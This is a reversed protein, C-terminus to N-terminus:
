IGKERAARVIRLALYPKNPLNVPGPGEARYRYSGEAKIAFVGEVPTVTMDWTDLVEVGFSMGDKLGARPLEFAWQAPREKGFYILYYEGAKGAAREDQWKDIPELGDGPAAELVKRLFAIRPPSQGHLVGGKSWWLVDQPHRYTEGHGVYTGAITGQWFRHVMEEGSINGWRQEIDGESKVEDFVVPKRYVDRYLVARGFDSVASGNQISAHTVWSKSHDYILRGNHISRLHDYPDSEQVIRFFRDWDQAKKEKMFDFENALSWWVNRFAALRAIVYRLYRDDAEAPMRDFGWHGEDYPHFLILDAEIGLDRLQGVRKELHRFFQPNFRGFDWKNPPTGEFPYYPPEDRNRSYRKPFVCMRLKNFPGAKLTALTQEELQGGQHTWAYCTTGIPFYPLGDAYAFHFTNRVRVPGHNAPSPEVCTFEGKHGNLEARSSKTQYTWVGRRPPMFRIRYVGDGDYFGAVTAAGREEGAAAFTAWVEVVTFPNGSSPGKLTVEFLGWQEVPAAAGAGAGVEAPSSSGALLSCVVLLKFAHLATM